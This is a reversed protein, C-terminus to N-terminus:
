LLSLDNKSDGFIDELMRNFEEQKGDPPDVQRVTELNEILETRNDKDPNAKYDEYSEVTEEWLGNRFVDMAEDLSEEGVNRAAAMAELLEKLAEQSHDGNHVKELAEELRKAVEERIEEIVWEWSMLYPGPPPQETDIGAAVLRQVSADETGFVTGSM